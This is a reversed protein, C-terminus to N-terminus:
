FTLGLKRIPEFSYRHIRCPGLKALAAQHVKTGYGKHRSFGYGPYQEDLMLMLRDRTVKAIISAAAVSLSIADAKPFALQPIDLNPLPLADILLYHPIKSLCSVAQRMAHRTAAIIRQRDIYSHSGIGVGISLATDQVVDFLRERQCATMKKSDTVGQLTQSLSANALPLVVAAAVVPGAWAGRGAEDIGAVFYYGQKYLALETELTPTPKLINPPIKTDANKECALRKVM